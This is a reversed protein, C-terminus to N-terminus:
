SGNVGYKQQAGQKTLGLTSGIATWTYNQDRCETVLFAITRDLARQMGAALELAYAPHKRRNVCDILEKLAFPDLGLAQSRRVLEEQVDTM